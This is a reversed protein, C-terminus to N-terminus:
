ITASDDMPDSTTDGEKKVGSYYMSYLSDVTYRIKGGCATHVPNIEEWSKLLPRNLDMFQLGQFYLILTKWPVEIRDKTFDCESGPHSDFSVRVTLQTYLQGDQPYHIYHSEAWGGVDMFQISEGNYQFAFPNPEENLNDENRLEIIPFLKPQFTPRSHHM